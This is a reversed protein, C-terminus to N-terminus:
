QRIIKIQAFRITIIIIKISLVDDDHDLKIKIEQLDLAIGISKILNLYYMNM